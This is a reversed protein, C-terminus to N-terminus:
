NNQEKILLQLPNHGTCGLVSGTAVVKNAALTAKPKKLTSKGRFGVTQIATQNRIKTEKVFNNRNRKITALFEKATFIRPHKNYTSLKKM